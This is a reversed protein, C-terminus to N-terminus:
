IGYERYNHRTKVAGSAFRNLKYSMLILKFNIRWIQEKKEERVRGRAQM